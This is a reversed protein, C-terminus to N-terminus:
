QKKRKESITHQAWIRDNAKWSLALAMYSIANIVPHWRSSLRILLRACVCVCFLSLSFCNNLLTSPVHM